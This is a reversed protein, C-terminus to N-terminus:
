VLFPNEKKFAVFFPAPTALRFHDAVISFIPNRAQPAHLGIMQGGPRQTGLNSRAGDM